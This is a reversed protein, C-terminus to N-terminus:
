AENLKEVLNALDIKYPEVVAWKCSKKGDFMLNIIVEPPILYCARPESNKEVLVLAVGGFKQVMTLYNLQHEQILNFDLRTKITSSKAEIAIFRGGPLLGTYDVTSTGAVLGNKTLMIPTPVKNVMATGALRAKLFLKNLKKEFIAGNNAM